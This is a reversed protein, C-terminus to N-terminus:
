ATVTPKGDLTSTCRQRDLYATVDDIRYLVRGGIRVFQPGDGRMRMKALTSTSSRLMHAVDRPLLLVGRADVGVTTETQNGQM